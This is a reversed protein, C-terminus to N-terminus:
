VIADFLRELPGQGADHARRIESIFDGHDPDALVLLEGRGDLPVAVLVAHRLRAPPLARIKAALREAVDSPDVQEGQADPVYEQESLIKELLDESDAAKFEPMDDLHLSSLLAESGASLEGLLRDLAEHDWDGAIDQRNLTVNLAKEQDEPLDVVTVSVSTVGTEVLLSVRQHGSVLRGTRKNFVPTGALGFQDLSAKLRGRAAKSIVRPNGPWAAAALDSVPMELVPWNKPTTNM